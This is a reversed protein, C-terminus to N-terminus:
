AFFSKLFEENTGDYEALALFEKGNQNGWSYTIVTKGNYYCMDFDSNNRNIANEIYDVEEPTFCEPNLIKKDEDDYWMVPNTLGMEFEKFDRTRVIYPTLSFGPEFHELYIMYYYGDAYRICPCAAYRDRTYSYEMMDLLRWHILDESEAFVITFPVGVAENEGAIEISMVYKGDGKCVSTNAIVVDEPLVLSTYQEWNKLDSSVFTDIINGDRTGHAYMNGNETYCCGFSHNYAFESVVEETEMDIFQYCATNRPSCPGNPGSAFNRAWEFRLLKGQWVVPTSEVVGIKITGLKKLRKRVPIRATKIPEMIDKLM